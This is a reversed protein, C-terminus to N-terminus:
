GGESTALWRGTMEQVDEFWSFADSFLEFTGACQFISGSLTSM